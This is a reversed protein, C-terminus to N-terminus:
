KARWLPSLFTSMARGFFPSNITIALDSDDDSEPVVFILMKSGDVICFRANIKIKRIPVGIEKGLTLIAAKDREENISQPVSAAVHLAIGEGKLKEFLPKLFRSKQRLASITSVLVVDKKAEGILERLSGYANQRGRIASSLEEPQIPKIGKNFLLELEQYEPNDKVEVLSKTKNEAEQILNNKMHEIVVSPKVALYQVPKGLKAIAFGRKELSELVDYVRSRPVGSMEAIEGVTAMNKNLLALWVKSEYINLDFHYKIKKILEPKAIM